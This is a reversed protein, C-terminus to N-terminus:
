DNGEMEDKKRKERKKQNVKSPTRYRLWHLLTQKKITLRTM